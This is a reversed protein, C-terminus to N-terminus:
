SGLNDNTEKASYVTLTSYFSVFYLVFRGKYGRYGMQIYFDLNQIINDGIEYRVIILASTM